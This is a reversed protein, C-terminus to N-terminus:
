EHPFLMLSKLNDLRILYLAEAWFLKLGVVPVGVMSDILHGVNKNQTRIALQRAIGSREKECVSVDPETQKQPAGVAKAIWIQTARFDDLTIHHIDL